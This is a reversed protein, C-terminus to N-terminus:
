EAQKNWRGPAVFGWNFGIRFCQVVFGKPVKQGNVEYIPGLKSPVPAKDDFAYHYNDPVPPYVKRGGDALLVKRWAYALQGDIMRSEGLEVFMVTPNM